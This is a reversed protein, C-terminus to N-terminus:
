RVSLVARVERGVGEGHGGARRDKRQLRFSHSDWEKENWRGGDSTKRGRRRHLKSSRNCVEADRARTSAARWWRPETRRADDGARVEIKKKKKPLAQEGRGSGFWRRVGRRRELRGRELRPPFPQIITIGSEGEASEGRSGEARRARLIRRHTNEKKEAYERKCYIGGRILIYHLCTGRGVRGASISKLRCSARQSANPPNIQLCTVRRSSLSGRVRGRLTKLGDLYKFEM